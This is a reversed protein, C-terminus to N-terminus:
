TKMLQHSLQSMHDPRQSLEDMVEQQETSIGSKDLDSLFKNVQMYTQFTQNILLVTNKRVNQIHITRLITKGLLTPDMPKEIFDTVGQHICRVLSQRDAHGSMVIIATDSDTERIKTILQVGDMKPMKLDTIILDFQNETLVELAEIGSEATKVFTEEGLIEQVCSIGIDLLHPEDDVLLVKPPQSEHNSLSTPKATPKSVTEQSQPTTEFTQLGGQSTEKKSPNKSNDVFAALKEYIQNKTITAEPAEVLEQLHEHMIDSSQLLLDIVEPTASIEGNRVVGLLAEMHHAFEALSVFGATYASGKITHALRVITAPVSTDDPNDELSLLSKEILEVLELGENIFEQKIQDRVSSDTM